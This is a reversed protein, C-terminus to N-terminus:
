LVTAQVVARMEPSLRAFAAGADGYEVGALVREGVSCWAVALVDQCVAACASASPPAPWWTPCAARSTAAAPGCRPWSDGSPWGGCGDPSKGRVASAAPGEGCGWSATRCCRP